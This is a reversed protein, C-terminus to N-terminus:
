VGLLKNIKLSAHLIKKKNEEVDNSAIIRINGNGASMNCIILKIVEQVQTNLLLLVLQQELLEKSIQKFRM